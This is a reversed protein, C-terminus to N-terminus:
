PNEYVGQKSPWSRPVSYAVTTELLVCCLSGKPIFYICEKEVLQRGSSEPLLCFAGLEFVLAFFIADM